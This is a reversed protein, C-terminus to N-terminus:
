RKIKELEQDNVKVPFKQYLKSLWQKELEKQYENIVTGRAEAFTKLRATEIKEIKIWTANRSGLLTQEGTEWKAKTLLPNEKTFYGEQIMVAEPSQSNYINQVDKASTSYFQFSVRRNREPETAQRFSGYDKEIIRVISINKDNLYKIVNKIRSASTSEPESASRYGAVEVIYNSNKQMIAYLEFLDDAQLKNIESIGEAYLLESAKSELKYPSQLLTKRISNITQTDPATIVNARAREPLQYREKNKEYFRVQGTSDSLSKQWVNEEMVQSLLVGERIESILSNFEPSSEELHEKEYENLKNTVYDNYYRQFVVSPSSGKPFPKQQRKIDQLFASADYSKGEISFLVINPWDASVAKMYDWKGKLLSSDALTATVKLSEPFEQLRFKKRLRQANAQELIKARSDTVVKQKLSTAMSVYPELNRKEVLKVIHWGYLTLVPKSYSGTRTLSYSADEIEPVMQGTGFMPLLGHNKRSQSDNSYSEVIKDWDEGKQLKTYAEDIKSKALEKQVPTATSDVQIMVHAIRIMGRNQRKDTVKIIHYGTKTRVPQSIKGIPLSYAANEIPYITQFVTFYGLNGKNVSATPDKSFRTAMDGFDSGEELRGRLAIAAHYAELTDAPSANEAVAILIHSAKVEQKLRNYAEFTLKEVLAKDVMFNKALQDRYSSMEEKFDSTTDKGEQKAQLVKIKLDTYLNLYEVPTLSESSDSVSKNKAYSDQFDAPSFKENGIEVLAPIEASVITQPPAPRKCATFISISILCYFLFPKLM